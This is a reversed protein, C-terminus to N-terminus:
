ITFYIYFYYIVNCIRFVNKEIAINGGIEYFQKALTISVSHQLLATNNIKNFIITYYTFVHNQLLYIFIDININLSHFTPM